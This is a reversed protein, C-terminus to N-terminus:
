KRPAILAEGQTEAYGPDVFGDEVYGDKLVTVATDLWVEVCDINVPYGEEITLFNM